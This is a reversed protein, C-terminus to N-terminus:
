QHPNITIKKGVNCEMLRHETKLVLLGEDNINLQYASSM